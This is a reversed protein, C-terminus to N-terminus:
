LSLAKFGVSGRNAGKEKLKEADSHNWQNNFGAHRVGYGSQKDLPLKGKTKHGDPGIKGELTNTNYNKVRNFFGPKRFRKDLLTSAALLTSIAQADYYYKSSKSFM